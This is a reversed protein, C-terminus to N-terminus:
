RTQACQRGVGVVVRALDAGYVVAAQLAVFSLNRTPFILCCYLIFIRFNTNICKASLCEIRTGTAAPPIPEACSAIRMSRCCCASSAWGSAHRRRHRHRPPRHRLRHQQRLTARRRRRRHRSITSRARSQATRRSCGFSGRRGSMGDNERFNTGVDSFESDRQEGWGVSGAM